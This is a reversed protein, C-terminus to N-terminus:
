AIKSGWVERPLLITSIGSEILKRRPESDEQKLLSTSFRHRSSGLYKLCISLIRGDWVLDVDGNERIEREWTKERILKPIHITVVNSTM